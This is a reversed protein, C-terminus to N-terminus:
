SKNHTSHTVHSNYNTARPHASLSVGMEGEVFFSFLVLFPLFVPPHIIKGVVGVLKLGGIM